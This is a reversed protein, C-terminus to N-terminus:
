SFFYQAAKLKINRPVINCSKSIFFTAKGGGEPFNLSKKNSKIDAIMDGFIYLFQNEYRMLKEQDQAM